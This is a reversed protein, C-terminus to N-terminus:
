QSRSQKPIVYTKLLVLLASLALAGAGLIHPANPAVLDFAVGNTSAGVATFLAAIV